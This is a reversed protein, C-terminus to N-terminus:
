TFGELNGEELNDTQGSFSFTLTRTDESITEDSSLIPVPTTVACRLTPDSLIEDNGLPTELEDKGADCTDLKHFEETVAEHLTAVSTEDCENEPVIDDISFLAQAVVTEETDLLAVANESLAQAKLPRATNAIKHSVVVACAAPNVPNLLTCPKGLNTDLPIKIPLMLPPSTPAHESTTCDGFDSEM